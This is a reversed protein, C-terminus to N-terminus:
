LVARCLGQPCISAAAAHRGSCLGHMGGRPRSCEGREGVCRRGLADFVHKSNTLFGSPKKIPRGQDPGDKIEAGYQRQDGQMLGVSPIELLREIAPVQWSTAWRPNEHLFYHDGDSQEQYLEAMFNLHAIAAARARRFASLDRSRVENMYQLTSFKTCEPSGILMYPRQRRPM